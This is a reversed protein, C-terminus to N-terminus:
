REYGERREFDYDARDLFCNDEEPFNDYYCDTCQALHEGNRFADKEELPVGCDCCTLRPQPRAHLAGFLRDLDRTFQRLVIEETTM